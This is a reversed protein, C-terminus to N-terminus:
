HRTGSSGSTSQRIISNSHSVALADSRNAWREKPSRGAGYKHRNWWTMLREPFGNMYSPGHSESYKKSLQYLQYTQRIQPNLTLFDNDNHIQAANELMLKVLLVYINKRRWRSQVTNEWLNWFEPPVRVPTM